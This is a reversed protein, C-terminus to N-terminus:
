IVKRKQNLQEHLREVEKKLQDLMRYVTKLEQDKKRGERKEEVLARMTDRWLEEYTAESREPVRDGWSMM